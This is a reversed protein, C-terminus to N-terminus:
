KVKKKVGEVVAVDGTLEGFQDGSKERRGERMCARAKWTQTQEWASVRQQPDM